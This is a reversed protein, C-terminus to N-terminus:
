RKISQIKLKDIQVILNNKLKLLDSDGLDHLGVYALCENVSSTNVMTHLKEIYKLFSEGKLYENYLYYGFLCALSYRCAYKYRKLLNDKKLILNLQNEYDSANSFIREYDRKTIEGNELYLIFFKLIERQNRAMNKFDNLNERKLMIADEIYGQKTLYNTFVLTEATAIGETLIKKAENNSGYICDCYHSLEHVLIMSDNITGNNSSTIKMTDKDRYYHYHDKNSPNSNDNFIITGNAILYDINLYINNSKYFSKVLDIAEQNSMKSYEDKNISLDVNEFEFVENVVGNIKLFLGLNNLYPRDTRKLENLMEYFKSSLLEEQSNM